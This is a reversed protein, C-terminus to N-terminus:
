IPIYLIEEIFASEIPYEHPYKMTIYKMIVIRPDHLDYQYYQHCSINLLPLIKLLKIYGLNQTKAEPLGVAFVSHFNELKSSEMM